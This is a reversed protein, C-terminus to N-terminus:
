LAPPIPDSPKGAGRNRSFWIAGGGAGAGALIVLNVIGLCCATLIQVGMLLSADAPPVGFMESFAALDAPSISNANIVAAILQGPIMLGGTLAGAIGGMRLAEANELPRDYNGAVFGAGLGLFLTICVSCLPSGLSVLLVLVFGIVGFIIGSKLM